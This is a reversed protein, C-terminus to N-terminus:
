LAAQILPLRSPHSAHKVIRWLWSLQVAYSLSTNVGEGGQSLNLWAWIKAHLFHSVNVFIERFM